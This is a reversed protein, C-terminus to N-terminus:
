LRNQTALWVVRHVYTIVVNAKWHYDNDLVTM